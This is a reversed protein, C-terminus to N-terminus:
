VTSKCEHRRMKEKKRGVNRKDRMGDSRGKIDRVIPATVTLACCVHMPRKHTKKDFSKNKQEFGHKIKKAWFGSQTGTYTTLACKLLWFCKTHHKKPGM